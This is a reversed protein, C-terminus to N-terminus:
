AGAAAAARRMRKRRAGDLARKADYANAFADSLARAQTVLEPDLPSTVAYWGKGADRLTLVLKGDSVTYSHAKAM